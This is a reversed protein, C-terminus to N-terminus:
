KLREEMPIYEIDWGFYKPSLIDVGKQSRFLEVAPLGFVAVKMGVKLNPNTCPYGTNADIIFVSDPSTVKVEDDIWCIHNENKFWVKASHGAFDGEGTVTHFGWYYGEKDETDKGTLEGKCLLTAGLLEEVVKIPDKGAENAERIQKGLQYCRSLTGKLIVDKMEKGDFLFGTDGTLAFCNESIKKGLREVTRYNMAEKIITVDGYEDVASLPWLTKDKLYPTTQQIEPIARGTYDGDVALIGHKAAAAICGPSSAGGLEIPVVYDVKKGTFEEIETISKEIRQGENYISTEKTMGFGEMTKLTEPGLPAITGMLFACATLADDPVDDVEVWGIERGANLETLLSEVGNEELGGGGTGLITCGRAFDRIDQEDKLLFKAM